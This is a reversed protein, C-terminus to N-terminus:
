QATPWHQEMEAIDSPDPFQDYYEGMTREGMAHMLVREDARCADALSTFGMAQWAPQERDEAGNDVPYTKEVPHRTGFQQELAELERMPGRMADAYCESPAHFAEIDDHINGLLYNLRAVKEAAEPTTFCGFYEWEQHPDDGWGPPMSAEMAAYEADCDAMYALEEPTPPVNPLNTLERAYFCTAHVQVIEYVTTSHMGHATFINQM